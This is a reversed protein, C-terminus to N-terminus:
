GFVHLEWAHIHADLQTGYPCLSPCSACVNSGPTFRCLEDAEAALSVSKDCSMDCHDCNGALDCDFPIKAM